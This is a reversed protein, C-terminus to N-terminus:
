CSYSEFEEDKVEEKEEDLLVFLVMLAVRFEGWVRTTV